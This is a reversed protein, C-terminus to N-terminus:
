GPFCFCLCPARTHSSERSSGYVLVSHFFHTTSQYTERTQETHTNRERICMCKLVCACVCACVYVYLTWLDTKSLHVHLCVYVLAPGPVPLALLATHHLYLSLHVFSEPNVFNFSPISPHISLSLSLSLLPPHLSLCCKTLVSLLCGVVPLQRLCRSLRPM